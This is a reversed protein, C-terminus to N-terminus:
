LGNVKSITVLDRTADIILGELDSWGDQNEGTLWELAAAAGAVSAENQLQTHTQEGEELQYYGTDLLTNLETLKAKVAEIDITNSM